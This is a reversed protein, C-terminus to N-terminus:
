DTRKCEYDCSIHEAMAISKTIMNFAKDIDKTEKPVSVKQSLINFKWYM